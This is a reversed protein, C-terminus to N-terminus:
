AIKPSVMDGAGSQFRPYGGSYGTAEGYSVM